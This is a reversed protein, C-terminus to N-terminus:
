PIHVSNSYSVESFLGAQNKARVGVFLDTRRSPVRRSLGTQLGVDTWVNKYTDKMFLNTVFIFYSYGQVGSHPDEFASWCGTMQPLTQSLAGSSVLDLKVTGRSVPPTYDVKLNKEELASFKHSVDLVLSKLKCMSVGCVAQSRILCTDAAGVSLPVIDTRGRYVRVNDIAVACNETAFGMYTSRGSHVCQDGCVEMLLTSHRFLLIRKESADYVLRYLYSQGATMYIQRNSALLTSIGNQVRYVCVTHHAKDFCVSYGCLDLRYDIPEDCDFYFSCQGSDGVSLYFDYLVVDSANGTLHASLTHVGSLSSQVLKNNSVQWSDDGHWLGTDLSRDFNDCLFGLHENAKWVGNEQGIVQYFRYQLGVDDSDKFHAVFDATIWNNEDFLIETTPNLTDETVETPLYGQWNAKWGSATQQCDSRFEVLLYAGEAVVRGPSHTNWRGLLPSFVSPGAYIWMFDYDAELSFDQFDLAVSDANPVHILFLSRENDAYDGSLGGSDMFTGTVSQSSDIHVMPNILKYYYNWNWFPGPDTHTQNPFHQHGRIQTCATANGLNHQGVNLTTGDDLTDRYFVHQANINLHRLCINRVLAASSQYMEETFFSVVDGYAEHEIGITYGNASGVHWAKDSERVLQAVQGDISRIVYHASVSSACNQFWAIAGSYTGETYHVVVDSVMMGNRGSSYNCSPAPVWVAGPYDVNAALAKEQPVMTKARLFNLDDGFLRNFDVNRCPAGLCAFSSDSLFLYIAYLFSYQPYRDRLEADKRIFLEAPWDDMSTSTWTCDDAPLECLFWFVGQYDEITDSAIGYHKCVRDFARAYALIACSDQSLIEEISIESLISILRLNERFVDKGHLTMGMVSYTHPMARPDKETTDVMPRHAFRTYTYSVAELSGRPISPCYGYASAFYPKLREYDNKIETAVSIHRELESEVKVQACVNLGGRCLVVWFLLAIRTKM